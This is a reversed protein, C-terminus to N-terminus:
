KKEGAKAVSAKSDELEAIRLQMLAITKKQQEIVANEASCGLPPRVLGGIAAASANFDHPPMGAPPPAGVEARRSFGSPGTPLNQAISTVASTCLMGILLVSKLLRM